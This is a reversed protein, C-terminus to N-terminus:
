LFYFNLNHDVLVLEADVDDAVGKLEDLKGTGILIRPNISRLKAELEGLVQAGAADALAVFEDHDERYPPPGARVYLLVAREGRSPRDFM